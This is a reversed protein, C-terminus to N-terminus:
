QDRYFGNGGVDAIMLASQMETRAWPKSWCWDMGGGQEAGVFRSLRRAAFGM